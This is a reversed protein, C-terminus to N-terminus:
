AAINISFPKSSPAAKPQFPLVFADYFNLERPFTAFLDKETKALFGVEILDFIMQAIDTAQKVGWFELVTIAMPGFEKLAHQKFKELLEAETIQEANKEKRSKKRQKLAQDLVDRLFFYAEFRYPSGQSIITNVSQPFSLLQMMKKRIHASKSRSLLAM